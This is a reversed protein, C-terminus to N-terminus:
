APTHHRIELRHNLGGHRRRGRVARVGGPLCRQPQGEAPAPLRHHGPRGPNRGACFRYVDPTCAKKQEPTAPGALASGTTFLTLTLVLNARSATGWSGTFKATM